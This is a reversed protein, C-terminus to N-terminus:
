KSGHWTCHEEEAPIKRLYSFVVEVIQNFEDSGTAPKLHDMDDQLFILDVDSRDGTSLIDAIKRM